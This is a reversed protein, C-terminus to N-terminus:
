GSLERELMDLLKHNAPPILLSRLENVSVWRVSEAYIPLPREMEDLECLAAEITLTFDGYDHTLPDLARLPRVRCALEEYCEREAAELATEAPRIKGGPFEWHGALHAGEPRLQVLVRSERVILAVAIRRHPKDQGNGNM